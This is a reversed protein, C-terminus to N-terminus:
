HSTDNSLVPTKRSVAESSHSSTLFYTLVSPFVSALEISWNTQENLAAKVDEFDHPSFLMECLTIKSLYRAGADLLMLLAVLMRSSAREHGALFFNM